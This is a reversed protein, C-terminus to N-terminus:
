TTKGKFWTLPNLTAILRDRGVLVLVVLFLGMWFGWYQPTVSSIVDHLLKFVIAGFLGGYMWGLGGIVVMLMLDASREVSFVDLSAFGSTQAMLAGAAGAVAAALTYTQVTVKSVAVGVASARLANDRLTQVAFGWPSGMVRRLGIFIILLVTLSYWAATQAQLDFEFRGLVPAMLVGQLGDAGGTLFDLKNALEFLVLSVGLTVMLRTLDTGRLITFACMFGLVTTAVVAFALGLLPDAHVHKAFLAAGYAGFGLFAAHGLSVIGRYGLILDLSLAFLAVIAIENVLAAHKPMAFPLVFLAAWLAFEWGRWRSQAKVTNLITM